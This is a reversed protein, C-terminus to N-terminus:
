GMDEGISVADSYFSRAMVGVSDFDALGNFRIISSVREEYAGLTAYGAVCLAHLFRLPDNPFAFAGSYRPNTRLFRGYDDASEDISAYARFADTEPALKGSKQEHSAVMQSKGNPSKGKIGFYANGPATQGWSSEMAGQAVLVAIPTGWRIKAHVAPPLIRDFFAKKTPNKPSAAKLALVQALYSDPQIVPRAAAAPVGLM